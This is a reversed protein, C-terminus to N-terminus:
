HYLGARAVVIGTGRRIDTYTAKFERSLKKLYEIIEIQKEASSKSLQLEHNVRENHQEMDIRLSPVLTDGGLNFNM